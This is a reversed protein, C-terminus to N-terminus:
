DINTQESISEGTLWEAALFRAIAIPHNIGDMTVETLDGQVKEINIKSLQAVIM